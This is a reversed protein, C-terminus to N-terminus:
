GTASCGAYVPIYILGTHRDIMGLSQLGLGGVRPCCWRGVAGSLLSAVLVGLYIQDLVAADEYALTGIFLSM